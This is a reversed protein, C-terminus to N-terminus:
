CPEAAWARGSNRHIRIRSRTHAQDWWGRWPSRSSAFSAFSWPTRAPEWCPLVFLLGFAPGFLGLLLGFSGLLLGFSVGFLGLLLGFSLALCALCSDLRVLCSDLRFALCAWALGWVRPAIGEPGKSRGPRVLTLVSRQGRIRCARVAAGGIRCSLESRHRSRHLRKPDMSRRCQRDYVCPVLLRRRTCRCVRQTAGHVHWRHCWGVPGSTVWVDGNDDTGLVKGDTCLVKANRDSYPVLAVINCGPESAGEPSVVGTSPADVYWAETKPASTWSAGGDDTVYVRAVCAADSAM